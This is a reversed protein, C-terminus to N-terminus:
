STKSPRWFLLQDTGMLQSLGFSHSLSKGTRSNPTTDRELIFHHSYGGDQAILKMALHYFYWGKSDYADRILLGFYGPCLHLGRELSANCGDEFSGGTPYGLEAMSVAIIDVSDTMPSRLMIPEGLLSDIMDQTGDCLHYRGNHLKQLGQITGPLGTLDLTLIKEGIQSEQSMQTMM